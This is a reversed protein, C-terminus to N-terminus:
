EKFYAKFDVVCRYLSVNSEYLEVPKEYTMEDIYPGGSGIVRQNFSILIDIVQRTVQKMVAYKAAIINIEGEVSKDLLYGDTITNTRQGESSGYIIYPNATKEPANLPYVRNQVDSITKLEMTLAAEFDM